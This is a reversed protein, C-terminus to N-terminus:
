CSPYTSMRWMCSGTRDSKDVGYTEWVDPQGVPLVIPTHNSKVCVVMSRRAVPTHPVSLRKEATTREWKLQRTGIVQVAISTRNRERQETPAMRATARTPLISQHRSWGMQPRLKLVRMYPLPARQPYGPRRWNLEGM